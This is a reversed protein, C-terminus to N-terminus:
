ERGIMLYGKPINPLNHNYKFHLKMDSINMTAYGCLTCLCWKTSSYKLEDKYQEADM